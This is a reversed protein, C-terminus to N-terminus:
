SSLLALVAGGYGTMLGMGYKERILEMDKNILCNALYSEAQKCLLEAEPDSFYKLYKKLILLNGGTGHCICLNKRSFSHKLKQLARQIDLSIMDKIGESLPLHLLELRASLIGGAGHCWAAPEDYSTNEPDEKRYDMWDKTIDNYHQHEYRIIQELYKLYKVDKTVEYLKGYALSIGANGHAM